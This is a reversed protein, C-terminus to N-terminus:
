HKNRKLLVIRNNNEDTSPSPVNRDKKMFFAKNQLYQRLHQQDPLNYAYSIENLNPKIPAKASDLTIGNFSFQYGHFQLFHTGLHLEDEQNPNILCEVTTIVNNLEIPIEIQDANAEAFRSITSRIWDAVKVNVSSNKSSTSIIAQVNQKGIKVDLCPRPARLDGVLRLEKPPESM